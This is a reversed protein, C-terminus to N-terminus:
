GRARPALGAGEDAVEEPAGPAAGQSESRRLMGALLEIAGIVGVLRGAEDLLPMPRETAHRVEIATRMTTELTGTVIDTAALSTLELSPNYVVLRAPVGDATSATPRGDGDLRCRYRGARDLYVTDAAEPDRELEARLRMLSAGRLVNLPNVNAVFERVYETNPRTIIEEPRGVQIIRGGEMMAVRSGLKLAEDLDHSVFLITCKLKRQFELLEDQLHERILPDLASFPEDMLLIDADTAFARALGVRQQMGGSLEHPYKDLWQALHVLELVERVRREREAKAVGRVELGFAVNEGINRWPMLAFQQFVMSIRKMRLRRLVEREARSVDVQGGEDEVLVRGRTVRNLGNVCRLLTSKGSGSLGMIVFIEGEEVAFSAGEVGVVHGTAEFISEKDEGEDLLALAAAPKPGFVVDVKDFTVVAM